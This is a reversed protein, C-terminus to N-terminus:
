TQIQEDNSEQLKSCLRDIVPVDDMMNVFGLRLLNRKPKVPLREMYIRCFGAGTSM